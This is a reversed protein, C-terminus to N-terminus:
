GSTELPYKLWTFYFTAGAGLSSQLRMSGGETEVIKKVIALGIGTSEHTDRAQLTQFIDYIRDHYQSEIGGGDDAVSFEYADGVDTATIKVKGDTRPHHDIANDILSLLVQKLLRRRTTFKPLDAAVDITFTSPPVLQLVIETILRDVDTFEIPVYQRGIRSYALLGDILAEMRDVRGRLLSLQQLNEPPLNHELDEAIWSSLNAIARLPAKLDHSTVYAFRDLEQNRERLRDNTRRLTLNLNALEETRSQLKAEAQQRFTLDRIIAIQRQEAQLQGIIIEIPFYEGNQSRGIAQWLQGGEPLAFITSASPLLEVSQNSLLMSWDRDILQQWKYGFMVTARDNCASIKGHVDLIFVSDIVNKFMTDILNQSGQLRSEREHLEIALSKFLKTAVATGITSIIVGIVIVTTNLDRLNQLQQYNRDLDVYEEAEFSHLTARLRDMVRKGTLMLARSAARSPMTNVDEARVINITKTLQNVKQISLQKLINVRQVQIPNDQVLRDLRALTQPFKKIGLNYPELFEPLRSNYYGRVSTETNLIDVLLTRSEKLTNQVRDVQLEAQITQYRM